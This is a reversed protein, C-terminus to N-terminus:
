RSTRQSPLEFAEVRDIKFHHIMRFGDDPMGVFMLRVNTVAQNTRVVDITEGDTLTLRFPRFPRRSIHEWLQAYTVMADMM